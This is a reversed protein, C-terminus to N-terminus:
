REKRKKRKCNTLCMYRGTSTTTICGLCCARGWAGLGARTLGRVAVGNRELVETGRGSKSDKRLRVAGRRIM